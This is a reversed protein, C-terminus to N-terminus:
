EGVGTDISHGNHNFNYKKTFNNAKGSTGIVQIFHRTIEKAAQEEEIKLSLYDINPNEKM